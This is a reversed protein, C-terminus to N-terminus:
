GKRRLKEGSNAMISWEPCSLSKYGLGGFEEFRQGNRLELVGEVNESTM